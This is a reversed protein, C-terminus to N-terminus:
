FCHCSLLKLIKFDTFKILFIKEDGSLKEVVSVSPVILTVKDMLFLMFKLVGKLLLCVCYFRLFVGQCKFNM